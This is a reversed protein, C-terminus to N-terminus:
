EIIRVIISVPVYCICMFKTSTIMSHIETYRGYIIKIGMKRPANIVVSLIKKFLNLVLTETAQFKEIPM